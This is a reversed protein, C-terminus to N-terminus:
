KLNPLAENVSIENEHYNGNELDAKNRKEMETRISNKELMSLFTNNEEYMFNITEM